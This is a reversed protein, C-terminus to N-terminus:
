SLLIQWQDDRAGQAAKLAGISVSEKYNPGVTTVRPSEYGEEVLMRELEGSINRIRSGGGTLIINELMEEVSDSSARAILVQLGDFINEVLANCANGILDGMQLKRPKGAVMVRVNIKKKEQGTYSHDEKIQRVKLTSLNTEPYTRRISYALTEDVTDGAYHVSIQDESTPFYGQIMCLDTTGAGIDVFLSNNAPDIYNSRRLRNEDRYGLAALFPEPILLIKDFVGKLAERLLDRSEADADAPIGIVAKIEKKGRSDVLSRIHTSFDRTAQLDAVTGNMLPTVLRLHLKHQLAEDGFLVSANDPIIGSVIGIDAYGVVTPVIASFTLESSGPASAMVSSSNTGLDFGVLLTKDEPIRPSSRSTRHRRKTRPSKKM